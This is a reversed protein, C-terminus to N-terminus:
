SNGNKNKKFNVKDSFFRQLRPISMSTKFLVCFELGYFFVNTLQVEDLNLIEVKQFVYNLFYFSLSCVSLFYEYYM